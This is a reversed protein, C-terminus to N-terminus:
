VNDLSDLYRQLFSRRLKRRINDILTDGKCAASREDSTKVLKDVSFRTHGNINRFSGKVANRVTRALHQLINLLKM